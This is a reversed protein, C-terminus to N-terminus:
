VMTWEPKCETINWKAFSSLLPVATVHTGSCLYGELHPLTGALWPMMFILFFTQINNNGKISMAPLQVCLAASHHGLFQVELVSRTFSLRLYFCGGSTWPWSNLVGAEYQSTEVISIKLLTEQPKVILKCFWLLHLTIYCLWTCSHPSIHVHYKVLRISHLTDHLLHFLFINNYLCM